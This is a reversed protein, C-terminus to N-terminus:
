SFSPEGWGENSEEMVREETEEAEKETSAFEVIVSGDGCNKCWYPLKFFQAM